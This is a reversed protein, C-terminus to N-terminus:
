HAQARRLEGTVQALRARAGTLDRVASIMEREARTRGAGLREVNTECRHVEHAVHDRRRRLSIVLTHRPVTAAPSPM